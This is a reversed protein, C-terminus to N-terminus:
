FNSYSLNKAPIRWFVAFNETGWVCCFLNRMKNALNWSNYIYCIFRKRFILNKAAYKKQTARNQHAHHFNLLQVGHEWCSGWTEFMKARFILAGECELWFPGYLRKLPETMAHTRNHLTRHMCRRLRGACQRGAGQHHGTALCRSPTRDTCGIRERKRLGALSQNQLHNKTPKPHEGCNM